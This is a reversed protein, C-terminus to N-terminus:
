LERYDNWARELDLNRSRFAYEFFNIVEEEVCPGIIGRPELHKELRRGVALITKGCLGKLAKECHQLTAKIRAKGHSDLGTLWDEHKQLAHSIDPLPEPQGSQAPQATEQSM